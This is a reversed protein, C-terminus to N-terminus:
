LCDNKEKERVEFSTIEAKLTDNLRVAIMLKELLKQDKDENREISDNFTGTHIRSHTKTHIPTDSRLYTTFKRRSSM